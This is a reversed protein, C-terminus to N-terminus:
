RRILGISQGCKAEMFCALYTQNQAYREITKETIEKGQKKIKTFDMLDECVNELTITGMFNPSELVKELIEELCEAGDETLLRGHRLLYSRMHEVYDKAKCAQMEIPEVRFYGAVKHCLAEVQERQMDEQLHVLFAPFIDEKRDYLYGLLIDFYEEGEHEAWASLDLCLCGKYIGTRGAAEELTYHLNELAPFREDEPMCYSFSDYVWPSEGLFEMKQTEQLTQVLEDMANFVSQKEKALYFPHNKPM